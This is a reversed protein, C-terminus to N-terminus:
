FTFGKPTEPPNMENEAARKAEAWNGKRRWHPKMRRLLEDVHDDTPRALARKKFKGDLPEAVDYVAALMRRIEGLNLKIIRDGPKEAGVTRLTRGRSLIDDSLPYIPLSARKEV